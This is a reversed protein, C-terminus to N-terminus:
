TRGTLEPGFHAAAMVVAFLEVLTIQNERPIWTSLLQHPVECSFGVPNERWWAFM